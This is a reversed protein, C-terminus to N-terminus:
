GLCGPWRGFGDDIGQSEPLVGASYRTAENLSRVGRADMEDREIVSVSQPTEVLATDTKTSAGITEATRYANVTLAPLETTEAGEVDQGQAQVASSLLLVSLVPAFPIPSRLLPHHSSM